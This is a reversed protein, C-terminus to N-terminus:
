DPQGRHRPAEGRARQVAFETLTFFLGYHEGIASGCEGCKCQVRCVGEGSTEGM